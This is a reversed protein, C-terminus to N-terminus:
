STLFNNSNLKRSVSSKPIINMFSPSTYLLWYKDSEIYRYIYEWRFLVQFDDGVQLCGKDTVSLAIPLKIFANHKYESKLKQKTYLRSFVVLSFLLIILMIIGEKGFSFGMFFGIVSLVVMIIVNAWKSHPNRQHLKTAESYDQESIKYSFNM